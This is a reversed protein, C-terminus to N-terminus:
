NRKRELIRNSNDTTVAYPHLSKKIIFTLIIPHTKYSNQLPTLLDVRSMFSAMAQLFPIRLGSVKFAKFLGLM